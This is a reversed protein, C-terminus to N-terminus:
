FFYNGKQRGIQNVDVDICLLCLRRQRFGPFDGGVFPSVCKIEAATNRKRIAMGKVGVVHYETELHVKIFFDMRWLKVKEFYTPLWDLDVFQAGISYRDVQWLWIGGSLTEKVAHADKGPVQKFLSVLFTFQSM